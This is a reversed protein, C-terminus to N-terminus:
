DCVYPAERLTTLADRLLDREKILALVDAAFLENGACYTPDTSAGTEAWERLRDLNTV